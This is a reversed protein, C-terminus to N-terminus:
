PAEALAQDLDEWLVELPEIGVALRLLGPSIGSAALEAETLGVHTVGAPWTILTSVGGLSPARIAHQAADTVAAAAEAGGAVEFSLAGGCGTMVRAALAHDPHSPLTPYHVREVRPHAALRTALAATTENQRAVRLPLTELGRWLRYAAAPDLVPGFLKRMLWAREMLAQGGSVVGAILDHHGGLYKTASHVALDAGLELVRANLPTAFTADVVIQADEPAERRLAELDPLRILPNTPFEAYIVSNRPLSRAAAPMEDVAARRVDVGLPMLVHEALEHTAGYVEHQLLLVGVAQDRHSEGLGLAAMLAVHIASMGSATVLSRDAGELRALDGEVHELTPNSWRTYLADSGPQVAARIMDGAAEFAFTSSLV